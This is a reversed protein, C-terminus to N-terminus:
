PKGCVPRSRLQRKARGVVVSEKCSAGPCGVCHFIRPVDGGAEGAQRGINTMQAHRDNGFQVDRSRQGTVTRKVESDLSLSAKRVLSASIVALGELSMNSLCHHGGDGNLRMGNEGTQQGPWVMAPKNELKERDLVSGQQQASWSM